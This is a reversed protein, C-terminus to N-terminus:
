FGGDEFAWSIRRMEKAKSDHIQVGLPGRPSTDLDIYVDFFVDDPTLKLTVERVPYGLNARSTIHVLNGGHDFSKLTKQIQYMKQAIWLVRRLSGIPQNFYSEDEHSSPKRGDRWVYDRSERDLFACLLRLDYPIIKM